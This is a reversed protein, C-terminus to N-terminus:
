KTSACLINVANGVAQFPVRSNGLACQCKHHFVSVQLSFYPMTPDLSKNKKINQFAHIPTNVRLLTYIKGCHCFVYIVEKVLPTTGNMYFMWIGLVSRCKNQDKVFHGLFSSPMHRFTSMTETLDKHRTWTTFYFGWGFLPCFRDVMIYGCPVSMLNCERQAPLMTRILEKERGTRFICSYIDCIWQQEPLNSRKDREQYIFHPFLDAFGLPSKWSLM